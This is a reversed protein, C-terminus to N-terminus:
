LLKPKGLKSMADEWSLGSIAVKKSKSTHGSVVVVSSKSIGLTKAIVEIVAGNAQGDVPPATVWVKWADFSDVALKNQSSRPIVRIMM